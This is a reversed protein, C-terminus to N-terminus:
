GTEHARLHTYSVPEFTIVDCGEAFKKLAELDTYDGVIHHTILAGSDEPSQAFLLLDIGLATAPAVMMRALQGAGIVGVRPFRENV